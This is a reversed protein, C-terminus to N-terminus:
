APKLSNPSIPKLLYVYPIFSKRLLQDPDEPLLLSQRPGVLTILQGEGDADDKQTRKGSHTAVVDEVLPAPFDPHM